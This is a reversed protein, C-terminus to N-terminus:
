EVTVSNEVLWSMVKEQLIYNKLYGEGYYENYAKEYEEASEYGFEIAQEEIAKEYDELSLTMGQEEAVLEVAYKFLIQEKALEEATTGYYAQLFEDTEMGYYSAYMSYSDEMVQKWQELEDEPYEKMKCNELFARYVANEYDAVATEENSVELDEKVQAKYEEVTIDEGMLISAIEDTIETPVISHFVITFVVDQGNLEENGYNEPFTVNIDFTEGPKHGIIADEFGDIFSNSGLKLTQKEATGGEFQVGDLKGSYDIFVTDGDQAARDKIGYEDAYEAATVEMTYAISEDVEKDTVEVTDVAEVKLGEYKEISVMENSLANGGCGTISAMMSIGLIIALLRKKM